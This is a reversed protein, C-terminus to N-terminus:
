SKKESSLFKEGQRKGEREGVSHRLLFFADVCQLLQVKEELLHMLAMSIKPHLM